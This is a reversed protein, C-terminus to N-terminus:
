VDDDGNKNENPFGYVECIKALIPRGYMAYNDDNSAFAFTEEDGLLWLWATFYQISRIASLGREDNAKDWAFVMYERMEAIIDHYLMSKRLYKTNEETAEDSLHPKALDFPLRFILDDLGFDFLFGNNDRRNFEALIEEHSRPTYTETTIM